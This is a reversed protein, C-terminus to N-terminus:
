IILKRIALSKAVDKSLPTKQWAEKDILKYPIFYGIVSKEHPYFVVLFTPLKSYSCDFPKQRVDLDSYKHYYGGLASELGAHQHPEVKNYALGGKRVYKLEFHGQIQVQVIYQGFKTQLQAETM